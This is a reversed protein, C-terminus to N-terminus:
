PDLSYRGPVFQSLELDDKTEFGFIVQHGTSVKNYELKDESLCGCPTKPPKHHYRCVCSEPRAWYEEESAAVHNGCICPCMDEAHYCNSEFYFAVRSELTRMLEKEMQEMEKEITNLSKM